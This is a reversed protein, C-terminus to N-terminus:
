EGGEGTPEEEVAGGESNVGSLRLSNKEAKEARIIALDAKKRADKDHGQERLMKAEQMLSRAQDLLKPSDADAGAAAAKKIADEADMISEDPPGDCASLVLGACMVLTLATIFKRVTM